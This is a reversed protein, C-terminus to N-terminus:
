VRRVSRGSTVSLRFWGPLPFDSVETLDGDALLQLDPLLSADEIARWYRDEDFPQGFAVNERQFRILM